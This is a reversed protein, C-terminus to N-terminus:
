GPRLTGRRARWGGLIPRVRLCYTLKSWCPSPAAVSISSYTLRTSPVFDALDGVETAGVPGRVEVRVPLVDEKAGVVLGPAEWEVDEHGVDVAHLGHLDGKVVRKVAEGHERGVALADGKAGVAVVAARTRGVDKEGIPDFLGHRSERDDFRKAHEALERGFSSM